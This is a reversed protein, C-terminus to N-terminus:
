AEGKEKDSSQNTDGRLELLKQYANILGDLNEFGMKNIKIKEDWYENVRDRIKQASDRIIKSADEMGMGNLVKGVVDCIDADRYQDKIWDMGAQLRWFYEADIYCPKKEDYTRNPCELHGCTGSLEKTFRGLYESFGMGIKERFPCEGLTCVYEKPKGNEETYNM